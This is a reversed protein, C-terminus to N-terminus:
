AMTVTMEHLYRWQDLCQAIVIRRQDHGYLGLQRRVKEPFCEAVRQHKMVVAGIDTHQHGSRQRDHRGLTQCRVLSKVCAPILAHCALDLQVPRELRVEDDAIHGIQWQSCGFLLLYGCDGNAGEVPCVNQLM